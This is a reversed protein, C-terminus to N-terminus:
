QLRKGAPDPVEWDLYRKGPFVPCADGCGMTIVVDAAEVVETTLRKPFEMTLDLGIEAMAEVVAPNVTDAPDSGASRVHVRGRAHHDLLAAAMQSRGANHVCVFLVEPVDTVTVRQVHATASIHRAGQGDGAPHPVVVDGAVAAVRPYLVRVVAVAVVAGVLQFLVFAPASRWAIGAFTNSLTRAVTVAPNAFSTSATFFYAGGIYAGVAFPAASARGSRVVGFIVLLLGFTAVAEALWLGSSSRVKTSLEVAPLSFMLNAIVAGAVAGAVQAGVYVGAEATGVGGFFRDALTVVPNLHAGSVPGVALIIAVLAAATAAANELLQLGTDNPSLRQAAIGSGIVAILLLASGVFEALAKRGLGDAM